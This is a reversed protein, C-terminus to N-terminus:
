FSWWSGEYHSILVDSMSVELLLEKLWWSGESHSIFTGSASVESELESSIYSGVKFEGANTM